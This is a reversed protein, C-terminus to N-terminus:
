RRREARREPPREREYELDRVEGVRLPALEEPLSGQLVACGVQGTMPLRWPSQLERLGEDLWDRVTVYEDVDHQALWGADSWVVLRRWDPREKFRAAVLVHLEDLVEDVDRRRIGTLELLEMRVGRPDNCLDVLAAPEFDYLINTQQM